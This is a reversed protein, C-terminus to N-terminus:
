LRMQAPPKQTPFHKIWTEVSNLPVARVANVSSKTSVCLLLLFILLDPAYTTYRRKISTRSVEVELCDAGLKGLFGLDLNDCIESPMAGTLNNGEVELTAMFMLNGLEAPVQGTLENGYLWMQQMGPLIGLETPITGILGCNAVSFSGLTQLDGIYTFLEGEQM